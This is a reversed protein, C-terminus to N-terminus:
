RTAAAIVMIMNMQIAKRILPIALITSPNEPLYEPIDRANRILTPIIATAREAATNADGNNPALSAPSIIPIPSSIVPM